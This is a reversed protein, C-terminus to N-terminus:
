KSEIEVEKEDKESNKLYYDVTNGGEHDLLNGLAVIKQEVGLMEEAKRRAFQEENL